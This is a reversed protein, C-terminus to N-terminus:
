KGRFIKVAWKSQNKTQQKHLTSTIKELEKDTIDPFRQEEPKDEAPLIKKPATKSGLGVMVHGLDTDSMIDPNILNWSGNEDQMFHDELNEVNQLIPFRDAM